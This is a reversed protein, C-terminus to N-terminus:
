KVKVNVAKFGREAKEVCFQVEQGQDLSKFGNTDINSYHVFIDGQIADSQLFGYGKTSNFWKVIGHFIDGTPIKNGDIEESQCHIFNNSGINGDVDGKSKSKGGFGFPDLEGNLISAAKM